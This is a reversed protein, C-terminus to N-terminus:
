VWLGAQADKMLEKHKTLVKDWALKSFGAFQQWEDRGLSTIGKDGPEYELKQLREHHQMIDYHTCFEELSVARHAVKAPSPPASSVPSLNVLPLVPTPMPAPPFPFPQQPQQHHHQQQQQLMISMALMEVLKESSFAQTPAPHTATVTTPPIHPPPAAATHSKIRNKIDFQTSSPAETLKATGRALHAGWINLCIPTLEWQFGTKKDTYIRKRADNEPWHEKLAEVHPAVAKDFSMKQDAVSEETTSAELESFDFEQKAKGINSPGAEGSADKAADGTDPTDWFLVDATPKRPRPMTIIVIKDRTTSIQTRLVNFGDEGGLPLPARNAPTQPKWETKDLVIHTPFCPLTNAMATVFEDFSCNSMFKFPGRQIYQDEPKVKTRSRSSPLAAVPKMVHIYGTLQVVHREEDDPQAKGKGKKKPKTDDDADDEDERQRKKEAQKELRKKKRKQQKEKEKMLAPSMVMWKSVKPNKAVISSIMGDVDNDAVGDDSDSSLEYIDNDAM